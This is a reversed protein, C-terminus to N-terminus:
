RLAKLEADTLYKGARGVFRISIGEHAQCWCTIYGTPNEKYGEIARVQRGPANCMAM